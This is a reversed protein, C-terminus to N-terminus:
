MMCIILASVFILTNEYHIFEGIEFADFVWLACGVWWLYRHVTFHHRDTKFSSTFVFDTCLVATSKSM